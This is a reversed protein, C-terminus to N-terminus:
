GDMADELKPQNSNTIRELDQLINYRRVPNIAQPGANEVLDKIIAALMSIKQEVDM